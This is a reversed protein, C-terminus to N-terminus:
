DLTINAQKIVNSWKELDNKLFEAAEAPTGGTLETGLDQLRRHLEPKGLSTNIAANLKDIIESPTGGPAFAAYWAGVEFGKLGSEDVTPVDPLLASRTKSTVALAKLQGSRIMPLLAPMNEFALDIRGGVLDIMAPSTGKYPIHVMEVGAMLNFLEGGLHSSSGIGVSSYSLKNPNAKMYAILEEVNNVPLSPNVVLVNPIAAVLAIPALDTLPDYPLNPFMSPATSYSPLSGLTITYGDPAASAVNATGITGSAGPRNEVVVPQGLQASIDQALERSLIDNAGGPTWASIWRIPKSPYDQALAVHTALCLSVAVLSKLYAKIKM